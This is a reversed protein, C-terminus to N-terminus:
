SVLMLSSGPDFKICSINELETAPSLPVESHMTDSWCHGHVKRM